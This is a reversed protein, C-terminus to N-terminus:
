NKKTKHKTDLCLSLYWFQESISSRHLTMTGLRNRKSPPYSTIKNTKQPKPFTKLHL